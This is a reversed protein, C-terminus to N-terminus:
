RIAYWSPIHGVTKHDKNADSPGQIVFMIIIM